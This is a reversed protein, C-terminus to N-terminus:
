FEVVRFFQAEAAVAPLRFRVTGGDVTEVAVPRWDAPTL